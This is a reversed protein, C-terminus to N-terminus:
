LTPLRKPIKYLVAAGHIPTHRREEREPLRQWDMM